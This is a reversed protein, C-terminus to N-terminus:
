SRKIGFMKCDEIRCDVLCEISSVVEIFSGSALTTAIDFVCFSSLRSKSNICFLCVEEGFGDLINRSGM